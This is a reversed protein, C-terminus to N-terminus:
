VQCPPVWGGFAEHIEQAIRITLLDSFMGGVVQVGIPMGNTDLGLPVQTVPVGLVNFIACYSFDSPKFMPEYHRPASSPHTPYLLIGDEGLLDQQIL